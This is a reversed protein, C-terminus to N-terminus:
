TKKQHPRLVKGRVQQCGLHCIKKELNLLVQVKNFMKFCDYNAYFASDGTRTSRDASGLFDSGSLVVVAFGDRGDRALHDM